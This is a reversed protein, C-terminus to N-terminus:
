TPNPRIQGSLQDEDFTPDRLAPNLTSHEGGSSSRRGIRSAGDQRCLHVPNASRGQKGACCASQTTAMGYCWCADLGAHHGDAMVKKLKKGSNPSYRHIETFMPSYRHVGHGSFLSHAQRANASRTGTRSASTGVRLARSRRHWHSGDRWPRIARVLGGIRMINTKLM